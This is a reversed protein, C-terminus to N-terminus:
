NVLPSIPAPTFCLVLIVFAILALWKRGPSSLNPGVVSPHRMGFFFLIVAWVYWSFALFHGMPVLAAVLVWSLYKTREGLLAYLIHGGDLQGIPFLNLATALLGVWAARAVPHLYIDGAPVGPFQIREMGQIILPTGFVLEGREVIGPVVKSMSIGAILPLLLMAFGALPG